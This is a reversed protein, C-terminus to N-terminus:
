LQGHTSESKNVVNEIAIYCIYQLSPDKTKLISVTSEIYFMSCLSEERLQSYISLSEKDVYCTHYFEYINNVHM